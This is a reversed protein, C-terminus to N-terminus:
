ESEKSLFDILWVTLAACIVSQIFFTVFSSGNEGFALNILGIISISILVTTIADARKM